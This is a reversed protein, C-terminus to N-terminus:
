ARDFGFSYAILIKQGASEEIISELEKIKLDHVFLTDRKDPEIKDKRYLGGNSFQLLKNTLVGKSVLRLTM